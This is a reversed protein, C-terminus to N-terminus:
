PAIAVPWFWPSRARLHSRMEPIISTQQDHVDYGRRPAPTRLTHGAKEDVSEVLRSRKAVTQEAEEGSRGLHLDVQVEPM